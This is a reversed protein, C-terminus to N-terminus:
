SRDGTQTPACQGSARRSSAHWLRVFDALLRSLRIDVKFCRRSRTRPILV